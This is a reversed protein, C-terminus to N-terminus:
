VGGYILGESQSSIVVRDITNLNIYIYAYILLTYIYIIVSFAPGTRGTRGDPMRDLYVEVAVSTPTADWDWCVAPHSSQNFRRWPKRLRQLLSFRFMSTAAYHWRWQSATAGGTEQSCMLIVDSHCKHYRTILYTETALWILGTSDLSCNRDGAGTDRAWSLRQQKHGRGSHCTNRHSTQRCGEFAGLQHRHHRPQITNLDVLPYTKTIGTIVTIGELFHSIASVHSFWPTCQKISGSFFPFRCLFFSSSWLWTARHKAVPQPWKTTIQSAANVNFM